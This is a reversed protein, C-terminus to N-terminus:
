GYEFNGKQVVKGEPDTITFEPKAPRGGYCTLGTCVEGGAGVLAMELGLQAGEKSQGKHATVVPKYPPGFALAVTEGKVVKVPKCDPTAAASLTSYKPRAAGITGVVKKTAVPSRPSPKAAKEVAKETSNGPKAQTDTITYSLLNWQGEPLAIPVNRKGSIKLCADDSYFIASFDCKPSSVNGLAVSSPELTLKDGSPTVKMDYYRGGISVVRSVSHMRDSGSPSLGRSVGGTNKGPDILLMDGPEPILQGKSGHLRGSIKMVDGFRGNSNADVLVVQRKKGELTIEGMRYAGATFQVSTYGLKPSKHSYASLFVSAPMSTGNVDVVVDLRPFVVSWGSGDSTRWGQGKATIEKDDTLDGNRNFDFCLRAVADARSAPKAAVRSLRLVPTAPSANKAGAKSPNPAVVKGNTAKDDKKADGAKEKPEQVSVSLVFAFEKGCLTVVGCFPDPSKYEPEKTVIRQFAALQDNGGVSRMGGQGGQAAQRTFQQPSTMLRCVQDVGQSPRSYDEMQKLELTWTEAVAVATVALLCTAAAPFVACRVLRRM